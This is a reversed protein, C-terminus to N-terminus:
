KGGFCNWIIKIRGFQNLVGVMNLKTYSSPMLPKQFKKQSGVGGPLPPASLNAAAYNIKEIWDQCEKSDSNNITISMWNYHVLLSDLWTKLGCIKKEWLKSIISNM